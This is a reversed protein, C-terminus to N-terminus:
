NLNEGNSCRDKDEHYEWVGEMDKEYAGFHGFLESEAEAFLLDCVRNFIEISKPQDSHIIGKLLTYQSGILGGKQSMVPVISDHMNDQGLISNITGVSFEELNIDLIKKFEMSRISLPSATTVIAHSPVKTKGINHIAKSGEQFGYIAPGLPRRFIQSFQGVPDGMVAVAKLKFGPSMEMSMFRELTGVVCEITEDPDPCEGWVFGFPGSYECKCITATECKSSILSNAIPTGHHPTGMTIIKHFYGKEYNESSYFPMDKYWSKVCARAVLGGMSHAVVDVQSIATGKRREAEFSNNLKLLLDLIPRTNKYSYPDFDGAALKTGSDQHNVIIPSFGKDLLGDKYRKDWTNPGDWVGHV